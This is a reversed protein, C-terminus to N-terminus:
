RSKATEFYSLFKSTIKEDSKMYSSEAFKKAFGFKKDLKDNTLFKGEREFWFLILELWGSPNKIEIETIEKVKISPTIPTSDFLTNLNNAIQSNKLAEESAQQESALKTQLEALRKQEFLISDQKIQIAKAADSSKLEQLESFKYDFQSVISEKIREISKALRINLDPISESKLRSCLQDAEINPILAFYPPKVSAIDPLDMSFSAAMISASVSDFDDLTINEWAIEIKNSCKQVFSFYLQNIQNNIDTELQTLQLAKNRKNEAEIEILRQKKAIEAAYADLVSKIKAPITDGTQSLENELTTFQKSIESLLQTIPKRKENMSQVTKRIKILYESGTKYTQDNVGSKEFNALLSSGYDNAKQVSTQNENLVASATQIETEIKKIEILENM